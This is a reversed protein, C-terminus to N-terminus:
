RAREAEQVGGATLHDLPHHRRCLRHSLNTTPDVWPHRGLRWCPRVECNSKRLLGVLGFLLGLESIDSGFGSWFGYWPGSLNDLGLVHALWTVVPAEYLRSRFEM